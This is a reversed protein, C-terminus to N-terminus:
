LPPTALDQSLRQAGASLRRPCRTRFAHPPPLSCLSLLPHLPIPSPSADSLKKGSRKMERGGERAGRGAIAKSEGKAGEGTMGKGLEGNMEERRPQLVTESSARKLRLSVVFDPDTEWDDDDRKEEEDVKVNHGASAKWM